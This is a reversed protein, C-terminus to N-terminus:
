EVIFKATKVAGTKSKLQAHYLGAPLHKVNVATPNNYTGILQGVQNYLSVVYATETTKINLADSTITPYFTVNAASPNRVSTDDKV